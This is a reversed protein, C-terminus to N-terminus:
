SVTIVDKKRYIHYSVAILAVTVTLLVILHSADYSGGNYIKVGSFYQPPALYALLPQSIARSFTGIIVTLFVFGAATQLPHRNKPAATGWFIGIVLYLLELLYVSGGILWFVRHDFDGATKLHMVLFAFVVYVTALIMSELLGVLLKSYYIRGRSIPKTLM